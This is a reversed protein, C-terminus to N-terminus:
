GAPQERLGAIYTVLAEAPVRRAAGIRVSEVLGARMLEYLKSRGIGLAEAAETPTLLLRNLVREKGNNPDTPTSGWSRRQKKRRHDDAAVM